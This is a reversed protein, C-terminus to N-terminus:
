LWGLRKKMEIFACLAHADAMKKIVEKDGFKHFGARRWKFGTIFCDPLILVLVIYDKIKEIM